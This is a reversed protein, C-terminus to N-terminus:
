KVSPEAWLRRDNDTWYVPKGERHDLARQVIFQTDDWHDAQVSLKRGNLIKLVGYLTNSVRMEEPTTDVTNGTPGLQLTYEKGNPTKVWVSEKTFKWQAKEIWLMYIALTRPPVEQGRGQYAIDALSM